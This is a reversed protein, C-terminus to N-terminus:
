TGGPARLQSLIPQLLEHAIVAHGAKNPHYIDLSYSQPSGGQRLFSDLLDVKPIRKEDVFRRIEAHVPVLGYSGFDTAPSPFVPVIAVLFQIGHQDLLIKMEAIKSFITQKNREFHDVHYDVTRLQKILHNMRELFFSAPKRFFRIKNGSGDTLDFDNLCMVYVVKDPRFRLVRVKLLELIQVTNYGDISFSLAQVTAPLGAKNAADEFKRVFTNELDEGLGVTVSDGVFAVRYVGDPKDPAQFDV